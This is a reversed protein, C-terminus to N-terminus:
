PDINNLYNQIRILQREEPKNHPVHRAKKKYSQRSHKVINNTFTRSEKLKPGWTEVLKQRRVQNLDDYLGVLDPYKEMEDRDWTDHADLYRVAAELSYDSAQSQNEAAAPAQAQAQGNASASSAANAADANAADVAPQQPQAPQETEVPVAAPAPKTKEEGGCTALLAVLLGLVFGGFVYLGNNMIKSKVSEAKYLLHNSRGSGEQIDATAEYGDIPSGNLDANTTIEFEIVTGISASKAPIQFRYVKKRSSGDGVYADAPESDADAPQPPQPDHQQHLPSRTATHGLAPTHMRSQAVYVAQRIDHGSSDSEWIVDVSQGLPAYFPVDFRQDYIVPRYGGAAASEPPLLVGMVDLPASTLNAGAIDNTVAQDVLLVGAFPLYPVQFRYKGILDDLGVGVGPGYYRYAVAAGPRSPPFIPSLADSAYERDFFANIENLDKGTVQTGKVKHAILSVAEAIEGDSVQATYPVYIWSALHNGAVTPITRFIIVFMGTEIYRLMYFIEVESPQYAVQLVCDKLDTVFGRVYPDPNCVHMERYDGQTMTMYLQLKEM